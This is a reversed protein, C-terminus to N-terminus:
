IAQNHQSMNIRSHINDKVYIFIKRYSKFLHVLYINKSMCALLMRGRFLDIQRTPIPRKIYIGINEPLHACSRAYIPAFNSLYHGKSQQQNAHMTDPILKLRLYLIHFYSYIISFRRNVFNSINKHSFLIKRSFYFFYGLYLKWQLSVPRLVARQEEKTLLILPHKRFIYLLLSKITYM